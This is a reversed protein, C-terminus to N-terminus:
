LRSIDCRKPNWSGSNPRIGFEHRIADPDVQMVLSVVGDVAPAMQQGASFSRSQTVVSHNVIFLMDDPVAAVACDIRYLDGATAGSM